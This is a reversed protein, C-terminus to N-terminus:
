GPLSDAMGPVINLRQQAEALTIAEMPRYLPHELLVANPGYANANFIDVGMAQCYRELMESTFRDRIRRATYHEPEEFPQLEGEAIFVWRTDFAAQVTRIHNHRKPETPGFLSFAVSGFRLKPVHPSDDTAITFCDLFKAMVPVVSASDTGAHGGCDFYATWQEGISVLLQRPRSGVVLPELRGLLDVLSGDLTVHHVKEHLRQRWAIMEAAVEDLPRGIFGVSSTIPAFQENLLTKM